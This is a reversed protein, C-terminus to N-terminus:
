RRKWFEKMVARKPAPVTFGKEAKLWELFYYEASRLAREKTTWGREVAEAVLRDLAQNYQRADFTGSVKNLGYAHTFEEELADIDADAPGELLAYCEIEYRHLNYLFFIKREM